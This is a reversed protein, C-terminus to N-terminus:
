AAVTAHHFADRVLCSREGAMELEVVKAPNVVVIVHGDFSMRVYCKAVVNSVSETM